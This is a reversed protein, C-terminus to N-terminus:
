QRVDYLWSPSFTFRVISWHCSNVAYTRVVLQVSGWPRRILYNDFVVKAPFFLTFYVFITQSVANRYSMVIKLLNDPLVDM